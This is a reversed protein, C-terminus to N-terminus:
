VFWEKGHGHDLRETSRYYLNLLRRFAQDFDAELPGICLLCISRSSVRHFLLLLALRILLNLREILRYYLNLLRCFVQDFDAELPGICWLCNSRTPLRHFLDTVAFGAEGTPGQRYWPVCHGLDHPACTDLLRDRDTALRHILSRIECCASGNTNM